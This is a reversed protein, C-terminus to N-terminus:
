RVSSHPNIRWQSGFKITDEIRGTKLMRYVTTRSVGMYEAYEEPSMRRALPRVPSNAAPYETDKPMSKRGGEGVIEIPSLDTPVRSADVFGPTNALQYRERM